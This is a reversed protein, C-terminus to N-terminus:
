SVSLGNTPCCQRKVGLQEFYADSAILVYPAAFPLQSAILRIPRQWGNQSPPCSGTGYDEQFKVGGLQFGMVLPLFGETAAFHVCVDVVLSNM